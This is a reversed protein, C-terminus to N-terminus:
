QLHARLMWLEEELGEVIEQLLGDTVVDLDAVAAQHDRMRSAVLEVRTALAAIADRDSIWGLPYTGRETVDEARGKPLEGLIVIREAVQDTWLRWADVLVDVREHVAQFGPGVVTWHAQKGILHLDVLDVLAPQLEAAVEAATEEPLVTWGV